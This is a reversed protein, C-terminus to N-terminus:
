NLLDDPLQTLNFSNTNELYEIISVIKHNKRFNYYNFPLSFIYYVYFFITNFIGNKKTEDADTNTEYIQIKEISKSITNLLYISNDNDCIQKFVSNRRPLLSIIDHDYDYSIKNPAQDNKIINIIDVKFNNILKSRIIDKIFTNIFTNIQNYGNVNDYTAFCKPSNYTILNIHIKNQIIKIINEDSILDLLLMTALPGGLSHGIISIKNISSNCNLINIINNKINDKFLNYMNQIGKTTYLCKNNTSKYIEEPIIYLNMIVDYIEDTGAISIILESIDSIIANNGYICYRNHNKGYRYILAYNSINPLPDITYAQEAINLLTILKNM